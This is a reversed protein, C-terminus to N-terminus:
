CCHVFAMPEIMLFDLWMRVCFFLSLSFVPYSLLGLCYWLLRLIFAPKTGLALSWGLTVVRVFGVVLCVCVCGSSTMWSTVDCKARSCVFAVGSWRGVAGHSSGWWGSLKVINGGVDCVVVWDFSVRSLWM